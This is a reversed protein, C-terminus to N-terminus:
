ASARDSLPRSPVGLAAVRNAHPVASGIVEGHQLRV